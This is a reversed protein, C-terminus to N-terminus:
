WLLGLHSDRVFVAFWWDLWYMHIYAFTEQYIQYQRSANNQKTRQPMQYIDFKEKSHAMASQTDAPELSKSHTFILTRAIFPNTQTRSRDVQDLIYLKAIVGFPSNSFFLNWLLTRDTCWQDIDTIPYGCICYATVVLKDNAPIDTSSLQM